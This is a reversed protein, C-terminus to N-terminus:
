IAILYCKGNLEEVTFVKMFLGGSYRAVYTYILVVYNSCIAVYIFAKAVYRM